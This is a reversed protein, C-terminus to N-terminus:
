TSHNERKKKIPVDARYFGALGGILAYRLSFACLRVCAHERAYVCFGGSSWDSSPYRANNIMLLVERIPRSHRNKEARQQGLTASVQDGSYILFINGGRVRKWM